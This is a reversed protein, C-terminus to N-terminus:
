PIRQLKVAALRQGIDNVYRTLEPDVDFEGGQSQQMPAYNQQGLQIEQAETVLTLERNGTVPNVACASVASVTLLAGALRLLRLKFM